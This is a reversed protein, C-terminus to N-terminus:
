CRLNDKKEEGEKEREEPVLEIEVRLGCKGGYYCVRWGQRNILNIRM